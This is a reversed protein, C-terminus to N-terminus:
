NPLWLCGIYVMVIGLHPLTTSNRYCFYYLGPVTASLVREHKTRCQLYLYNMINCLVPARRLIKYVDVAQLEIQTELDKNIYYRLTQM